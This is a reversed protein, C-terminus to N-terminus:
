RSAFAAASFFSSRLQCECCCSRSCKGQFDFSSTFEDLVKLFFEDNEGLLEGITQKSLGPCNRLFLAVARPEMDQGVLQLTQVCM